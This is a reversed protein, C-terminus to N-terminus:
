AEFANVISTGGKMVVVVSGMPSTWDGYEAATEVTVVIPVDKVQVTDPPARGAPKDIFGLLPIILPVGVAAPVDLKVTLAVSLANCDDVASREIM